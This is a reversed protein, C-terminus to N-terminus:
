KIIQLVQYKFPFSRWVKIAFCNELFTANQKTCLALISKSYAWIETLKKGKLFKKGEKQSRKDTSRRRSIALNYFFSDIVSEIQTTINAPLKQKQSFLTKKWICLPIKMKFCHLIDFTWYWTVKNYVIKECFM